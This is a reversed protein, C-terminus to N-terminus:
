IRLAAALRQNYQQVSLVDDCSSDEVYKLNIILRFIEENTLNDTQHINKNVRMPGIFQRSRGLIPKRLFLSELVTPSWVPDGFGLVFRVDHILQNWEAKCVIGLDVVGDLSLPEKTTSYFQIGRDTLFKVLDKDIISTLKGWLLGLPKYKMQYVPKCMLDMQFGIFTNDPNAKYASFINEPRLYKRSAKNLGHWCFSYVNDLHQHLESIVDEIISGDLLIRLSHEKSLRKYNELFEEATSCIVTQIGRTTLAEVFNSLWVFEGMWASTYPKSSTNRRLNSSQAGYILFTM